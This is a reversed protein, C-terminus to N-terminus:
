ERPHAVGNLEYWNETLRGGPAIMWVRFYGTRESLIPTISIVRGGTEAEARAVMNFLTIWGGSMLTLQEASRSVHAVDEFVEVEPAWREATPDGLYEKLVNDEASTSLGKEASYVSLALHGEHFEYKASLAVEGAPLARIADALTHRSNPVVAVLGPAPGAAAVVDEGRSSGAVALTLVLGRWLTRTTTRM